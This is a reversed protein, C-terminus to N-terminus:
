DEYDWLGDELFKMFFGWNVYIKEFDIPGEDTILDEKM